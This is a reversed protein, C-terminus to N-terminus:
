YDPFKFKLGMELGTNFFYTNNAGSKRRVTPQAFISIQNVIQYQLGLALGVTLHPNPKINNVTFNLSTILEAYGRLSNKGISYRLALPIEYFTTKEFSTFTQFQGSFVGFAEIRKDYVAYRFGTRFAVQPNRDGTKVFNFGYRYASVQYTGADSVIGIPPVYFDPSGVVDVSFHSERKDQGHALIPLLILFIFCQKM